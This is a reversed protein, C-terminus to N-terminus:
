IHFKFHEERLQKCIGDVGPFLRSWNIGMMNLDKMVLHRENRQIKIASLFEGNKQNANVVGEIDDINSYMTVSQQPLTRPNGISPLEIVRVMPAPTRLLAVKGLLSSWKEEDFVFISITDDDNNTTLNNFAFFAAVYPSKTWDLLPTPYGHHQALNLLAGLSYDDNSNYPTESFSGTFGVTYSGHNFIIRYGNKL